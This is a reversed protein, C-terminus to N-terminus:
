LAGRTNPDADAELPVFRAALIFDEIDFSIPNEDQYGWGYSTDWISLVLTLEDCWEPQGPAIRYWVGGVCWEVIIEHRAVRPDALATGLNIM